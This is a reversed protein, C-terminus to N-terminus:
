VCRSLRIISFGLWWLKRMWLLQTNLHLIFVLSKNLYKNLHIFILVFSVSLLLSCIKYALDTLFYMCLTVYFYGSIKGQSMKTARGVIKSEMFSYYYVICDSVCLFVFRSVTGHNLPPPRCGVDHGKTLFFPCALDRVKSLRGSELKIDLNM